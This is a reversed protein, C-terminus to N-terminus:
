GPRAAAHRVPGRGRRGRRARRPRTSACARWKRAQPRCSAADRLLQLRLEAAGPKRGRAGEHQRHGDRGRDPAHRRAQGIRGPLLRGDRDHRDQHRRREPRPGAPRQPEGAHHRELHVRAALVLPLVRPVRPHDRARAEGHRRRHRPSEAGPLGTANEFHSGTMGLREAYQNMLAAFTPETGAVAEALAISADNGSQVIM